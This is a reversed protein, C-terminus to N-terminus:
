HPSLTIVEAGDSTMRRRTQRPLESWAYMWLAAKADGSIPQAEIWDEIAAFESNAEVMVDVSSIYSNFM